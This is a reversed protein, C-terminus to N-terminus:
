ARECFFLLRFVVIYLPIFHDMCMNVLTETATLNVKIFHHHPM